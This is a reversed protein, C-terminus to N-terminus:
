GGRPSADRMAGPRARTIVRQCYGYLPAAVAFLHSRTGSLKLEERDIKNGHIFDNRRKYLKKWLGRAYEECNSTTWITKRLLKNLENQGVKKVNEPHILIELASVWLAIIRGYDFITADQNAPPQSAHYAMNLSRMLKEDDWSPSDSNYSNRWCSVLANFMPRDLASCSITARYSGASSQGAFEDIDDLAVLEPTGSVLNVYKRDIMWPYFEFSRSYFVGCNGKQWIHRARARPIVSTSLIDRISAMADASRFREPVSSRVLLVTPYCKRGFADTFRELFNAHIPHAANIEQVRSDSAPVFAAPHAEMSESLEVNALVAM